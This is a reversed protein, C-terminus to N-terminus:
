LVIYLITIIWGLEPTNNQKAVDSARNKRM